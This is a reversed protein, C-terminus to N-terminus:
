SSRLELLKYYKYEKSDKFEQIRDAPAKLDADIKDLQNDTESIDLGSQVNKELVKLRAKLQTALPVIDGLDPPADPPEEKMEATQDESAKDKDQAWAWSPPSLAYATFLLALIALHRLRM